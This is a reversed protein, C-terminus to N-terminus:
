NVLNGFEIAQFKRNYINHIANNNKNISFLYLNESFIRKLIEANLNIETIKNSLVWGANLSEIMVPTETNKPAFCLIPRKAGVYEFAKVPVGASHTTDDGVILWLLHANKMLTLVGRRPLNGLFIIRKSSKFEVIDNLLTKEFNGAINISIDNLSITGADILIDLAALL